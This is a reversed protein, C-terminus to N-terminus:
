ADQSHTTEAFKECGETVHENSVPPPTTDKAVATPTPTNLCYFLELAGFLKTLMDRNEADTEADSFQSARLMEAFGDGQIHLENKKLKVFSVKALNIRWRDDDNPPTIHLWGEIIKFYAKRPARPPEVPKTQPAIVNTRTMM